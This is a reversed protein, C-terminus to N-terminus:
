EPADGLRWCPDRHTQEHRAVRRLADDSLHMSSPICPLIVYFVNDAEEVIRVEVGEPIEKGPIVRRLEEGYVRTPDALLRERFGPDKLAKVVLDADFGARQFAIDSVIAEMHSPDIDCLVEGRLVDQGRRYLACKGVQQAAAFRDGLPWRVRHRNLEFQRM